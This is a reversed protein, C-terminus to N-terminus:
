QDESKVVQIRKTEKAGGGCDYILDVTNNIQLTKKGLAKWDVTIIPNDSDKHGPAVKKIADTIPRSTAPDSLDTSATALITNLASEAALQSASCANNACVVKASLTCSHTPFLTDWNLTVKGGKALTKPSVSLNIITQDPTANYSRAVQASVSGHRCQITYNGGTAITNLTVPGSYTTIPVFVNGNEQVSYSDSGGCTLSLTGLPYFQGTIVASVVSPDACENNITDWSGRSCGTVTVTKTDLLNGNNYLYFNRSGASSGSIVVPSPGGSNGNYVVTGPASVGTNTTESTIQSTGIPNTTSWTADVTCSSAGVAISCSNSSLSLSGTPLSAEVVVTISGYSCIDGTLWCLTLYMTHLGPTTPATTYITGSCANTSICVTGVSSDLSIAANMNVAPSADNRTAMGNLVITEGPTYVDKDTWVTAYATLYLLQTKGWRYYLDVSSSAASVKTTSSFLLCVAIGITFFYRVVTYM